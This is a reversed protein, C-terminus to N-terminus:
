VGEIREEGKDTILRSGDVDTLQFVWGPQLVHSAIIWTSLGDNMRVYFRSDATDTGHVNILKPTREESGTTGPIITTATTGSTQAVYSDPLISTSTYDLWTSNFNPENTSSASLLYIEWGSSGSSPPIFSSGAGTPTAFWNGYWGGYWGGFWTSSPNSSSTSSGSFWGGYWSGYWGSHM